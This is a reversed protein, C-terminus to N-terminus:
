KCNDISKTLYYHLLDPNTNNPEHSNKFALKNLLKISHQNNRHVIAEIKNVNIIDFAYAIVKQAAEKM